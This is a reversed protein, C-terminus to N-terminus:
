FRYVLFTGVHGNTARATVPSRAAGGVLRSAELHTLVGWRGGLRGLVAATVGVDRLGAGPLHTPLGSSAARSPTVGFLATAYSRDMWTVSPGFRVMVRRAPLARYAASLEVLLGGDGGLRRRAATRYSARPRDYDGFMVLVPTASVDGLGRLRPGDEARRGADAHGAVGLRLRPSALLNVGLGEIPTLFFRDRWRVDVYPFAAARIEDSGLYRFPSGVVAGAGITVSWDPRRPPEGAAAPRDAAAQAGLRSSAIALLTMAHRAATMLTM